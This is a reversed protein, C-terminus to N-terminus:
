AFADVVDVDAGAAADPAELAAIAQHDAALVAITCRRSGIKAASAGPPRHPAGCGRGRLAAFWRRAHSGANRGSPAPWKTLITWLPM